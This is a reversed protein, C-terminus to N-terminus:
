FLESLLFPLHLRPCRLPIELTVCHSLLAPCLQLCVDGELGHSGTPKTRIRTYDRGLQPINPLRKVESFHPLLTKKKPLHPWNRCLYVFLMSCANLVLSCSYGAGEM